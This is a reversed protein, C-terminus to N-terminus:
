VLRRLEQGPIEAPQQPHDLDAHQDPLHRGDDRPGDHVTKNKSLMPVTTDHDYVREATFVPPPAV